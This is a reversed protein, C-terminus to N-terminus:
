IEMFEQKLRLYGLEEWINYALNLRFLLTPKAGARNKDVVCAYFREDPNKTSVISKYEEAMENESYEYKSLTQPHIQKFLCLTDLVEKVTKSVSLDNITLNVPLTSSELLQMSSGIFVRYKQAINSLLTATKKIEAANGINEIDTKLTDYFAYEINYKYYYNLIIKRLDDNSHETVHIFHICDAASSEKKLWETVRVTKRFEESATLIRKVFDNRSENPRRLIFGDEDLEVNTAGEDARYQMELLEGETKVLQQGHLKQIEPNNIVTTIYCLRIKEESMENSIILVKKKHVLALYAAIDVTFRSKGANSPMAYSMTEGKRLGKFAKSLIPFPIDLGTTLNNDGGILFETANDNLIVQSLRNTVGIQEIASEVEEISMESYRDYHAIDVIKEQISRTPAVLYNKKLIFLKKLRTYIDELDFNRNAVMNKISMKLDYTSIEEKPFKFGDKAEQPAYKEGDQFLIIKYLNSLSKESFYCVDAPFYFRSIAKPNNLLLGVYICELSLDTIDSPFEGTDVLDSTKDYAEQEQMRKKREAELRAKERQERQKRAKEAAQEKKKKEVLSKHHEETDIAYKNEEKYDELDYNSVYYEFDDESADKKSADDQNEYKAKYEEETLGEEQMIQLAKKSIKKITGKKLAEGNSSPTHEDPNFDVIEDSSKEDNEDSSSLSTPSVNNVDVVTVNDMNDISNSVNEEVNNANNDITNNISNNELGNTENTNVNNDSYDDM